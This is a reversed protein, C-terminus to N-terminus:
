GGAVPAAIRWGGHGASAQPRPLPSEIWTVGSHPACRSTARRRAPADLATRPARPATRAAGRGQISAASARRAPAQARRPRPRRGRARRRPRRAAPARVSRAGAQAAVAGSGGRRGGGGAPAGTANSHGCAVCGVWNGETGGTPFSGFGSVRGEPGGGPGDGPTVRGLSRMSGYRRGGLSRPAGHPPRAPAPHRPLEDDREDRAQQQEAHVGGGAFGVAAAAAARPAMAAALGAGRRARCGCRQALQVRGGGRQEAVDKREPGRVARVGGVAPEVRHSAFLVFSQVRTAPAPPPRLACAFQVHARLGSNGVAGPCPERAAGSCGQGGRPGCVRSRPPTSPLGVSLPMTCCARWAHDKEWASADPASPASGSARRRPSAAARLAHPKMVACMCRSLCGPVHHTAAAPPPHSHPQTPTHPLFPSVGQAPRRLLAGLGTRARVREAPLPEHRPVAAARDVVRGADVALEKHDVCGCLVGLHMAAPPPPTPHNPLTPDARRPGPQLLPSFRTGCAPRGCPTTHRM